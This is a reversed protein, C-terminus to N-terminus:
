HGPLGFTPLETKRKARYKKIIEKITDDQFEIKINILLTIEPDAWYKLGPNNGFFRIGNFWDNSPASIIGTNHFDELNTLRQLNKWDYISEMFQIEYIYRKMDYVINKSVIKVDFNISKIGPYEHEKKNPRYPNDQYGKIEFYFSPYDSFSNPFEISAFASIEGREKALDAFRYNIDYLTYCSTFNTAIILLLCIIKIKKM